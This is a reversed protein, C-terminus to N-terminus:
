QGVQWVSPLSNASRASDRRKFFSQGRLRSCSSFLFRLSELFMAERELFSGHATENTIGQASKGRAYKKLRKVEVLEWKELRELHHLIIRHYTGLKFAMDEVKLSLGTTPSRILIHIIGARIPNSCIEILDPVNNQIVGKESEEDVNNDIIRLSVKTM